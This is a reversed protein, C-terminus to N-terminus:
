RPSDGSGSPKAEEAERHCNQERLISGALQAPMVAASRGFSPPPRISIVQVATADCSEITIARPVPALGDKWEM